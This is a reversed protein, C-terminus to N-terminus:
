HPHREQPKTSAVAENQEVSLRYLEQIEEQLSPAVRTWRTVGLIEVMSTDIGGNGIRIYEIFFFFFCRWVVSRSCFFSSKARWIFPENLFRDVFTM